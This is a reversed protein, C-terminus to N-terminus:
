MKLLLPIINQYSQEGTNWSRHQWLLTLPFLRPRILEKILLPEQWFCSRRSELQEEM